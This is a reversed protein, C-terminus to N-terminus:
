YSFSKYYQSYEGPELVAFVQGCTQLTLTDTDPGRISQKMRPTQDHSAEASAEGQAACLSLSGGQDRGSSHRWHGIEYIGM